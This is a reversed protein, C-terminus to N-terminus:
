KNHTQIQTANGAESNIALDKTLFFEGRSNEYIVSVGYRKMLEGAKGISVIVKTEATTKKKTAM